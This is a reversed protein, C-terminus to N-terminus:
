SGRGLLSSRPAPRSSGQPVLLELGFAGVLGDGSCFRDAREAHEGIVESFGITQKGGRQLNLACRCQSLIRVYNLRDVGGLGAGHGGVSVYCRYVYTVVSLCLYGCVFVPLKM